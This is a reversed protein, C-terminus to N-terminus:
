AKAGSMLPALERGILTLKDRLGSPPERDAHLVGFATSDTFAFTILREGSTISLTETGDIGILSALSRMNRAIEPAQGKFDQAAKEAAGHAISASGKIAVACLVGPLQSVLQVVREADLRDGVGLLARLLMQDPDGTAAAGFSMTNGAAAPATFARSAAPEAPMSPGPAPRSSPLASEAVFTKVLPTSAPRPPAAPAPEFMPAASKPPEQRPPLPGFSGPGPAPPPTELPAGLPELEPLPGFAFPNSAAPREPPRGLDPRPAPAAEPMAGFGLGKPEATEPPRPAEFKPRTFPSAGPDSFLQESGLGGEPEAARGPEFFPTQAKGTWDGANAAFPDFSTMPAAKPAPPPAPPAPAPAPPPEAAKAFPNQFGTPQIFGTAPASPPEPQSVPAPASAAPVGAFAPMAPAAAGFTPPGAPPPAPAFAPAAGDAVPPLLHFIENTPIRVQYDRRGHAIVTRFTNETGDIITGLDVSVQGTALQQRLNAAPLKTNIWAPIFNPDFGLDQPTQGKLISALSLEVTDDAKSSAAAPQPTSGPM